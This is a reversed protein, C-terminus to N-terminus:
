STVAAYAAVVFSILSLLVYASSSWELEVSSKICCSQQRQLANKVSESGSIRKHVGVISSRLLKAFSLYERGVSHLWSFETPRKQAKVGHLAVTDDLILDYVFYILEQFYNSRENRLLSRSQQVEWGSM